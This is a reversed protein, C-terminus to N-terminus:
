FKKSRPHRKKYLEKLYSIEEETYGPTIGDIELQKNKYRSYAVQWDGLIKEGKIAKELQYDSVANVKEGKVDYKYEYDPPPTEDKEIYTLLKNWRDLAKKQLNHRVSLKKSVGWSTNVEYVEVECTEPLYRCNFSLFSGYYNNSLLVYYLCGDKTVGKEHLDKLYLGIQICYGEKPKLERALIDAGIGQATKIEVVYRKAQEGETDSRSAMLVDLYGNWDPSSGGVAVEDGLFHEGERHLQMFVDRKLGEEIWKGISMRMISQTDDPNTIPEGKWKWFSDRLCDLSSSAYFGRRDRYKPKRGKHLINVIKQLLDKL